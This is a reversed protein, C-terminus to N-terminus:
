DSIFYGRFTARGYYPHKKPLVVRLYGFDGATTSTWGGHPSWSALPLLSMTYDHGFASALRMVTCGGGTTHWIASCLHARVGHASENPLDGGNDYGHVNLTRISAKPFTNSDPIACVVSMAETDSDNQLAYNLDIPKGGFTKCDFAHVRMDRAQVQMPAALSAILVATAACLSLTVQM